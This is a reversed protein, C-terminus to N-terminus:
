VYCVNYVFWIFGLLLWIFDWVEGGGGLFGGM